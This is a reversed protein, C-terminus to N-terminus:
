PPFLPLVDDASVILPLAYCVEDRNELWEVISLVFNFTTDCSPLFVIWHSLEALNRVSKVHKMLFRMTQDSFISEASSRESWMDLATVYLSHYQVSYSLVPSGPNLLSVSSRTTITQSSPKLGLQFVQFAERAASLITKFTISDRLNADTTGSRSVIDQVLDNDAERCVFVCTVCREVDYHIPNAHIHSVCAASWHIYM